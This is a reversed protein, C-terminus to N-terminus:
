HEHLFSAILNCLFKIEFVVKQYRYSSLQGVLDYFPLISEPVMKSFLLAHLETRISCWGGLNPTSPEFGEVGALSRSIIDLIPWGFSLSLSSEKVAHKHVLQPLILNV